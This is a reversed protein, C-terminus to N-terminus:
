SKAYRRLSDIKKSLIIDKDQTVAGNLCDQLDNFEKSIFINQKRLQECNHILHENVTRLEENEKQLAELQTKLEENQKVLEIGTNALSTVCDDENYM